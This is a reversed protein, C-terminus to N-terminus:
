ATAETSPKWQEGMSRLLSGGILKYLAGLVNQYEGEKGDRQRSLAAMGQESIFKKLRSNKGTAALSLVAFPRDSQGARGSVMSALLPLSLIAEPEIPDFFPEMYPTQGAIYAEVKRLKFATGAVGRGIQMTKSVYNFPGAAVRLRQNEKITAKLNDYFKELRGHRDILLEDALQKAENGYRYRDEEATPRDDVVKWRLTYTLGPQPYPIGLVVENLEARVRLVGLERIFKTEEEDIRSEYRRGLTNWHDSGDTKSMQWHYAEVYFSRPDPFFEPGPFKLIVEIEDTPYEVSMSSAEEIGGTPYCEECQTATLAYV